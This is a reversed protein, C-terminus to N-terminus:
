SHDKGKERSYYYSYYNYYSDKKIDVGNFTVGLIKSKVGELQEKCRQGLDKTLRGSRIVLIVGDVMSALVSADAAALVPPSDLLIIDFRLTLHKLFEQMRQSGLLGSPNPPLPGSTIVRLNEVETEQIFSSVQKDIFTNRGTEDIGQLFYQGYFSLDRPEKPYNICEQDQFNFDGEKWSLLHKLTEDIQLNLPGKLDEIGIFGLNVLIYGLPQSNQKQRLLGEKLQEETVKGSKILLNGLKKGGVRTEWDASVIRGSDFSVGITDNDASVTLVGTKSQVEILKFLDGLGYEELRGERLEIDYTNVLGTTIGTSNNLKFLKHLIPKRLDTDLLLVRNGTQAMVIGLNAVTTSKGEGSVSSTVLVTKIPREINSFKINTNLTRYAETVPSSIDEQTILSIPNAM